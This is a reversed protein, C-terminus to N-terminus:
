RLRKEIEARVRQARKESNVEAVLSYGKIRISGLITKEWTSMKRNGKKLWDFELSRLKGAEDFEADELLEEKSRGVALPALAEFATEASEIRFTLTHFVLPDGDTNALRPPAHLGDRIDLYAERIDETYRVLDEAALNRNQKAIKRQLRRRLGIIEAKCKPPIRIPATCGLISYGKLNWIQTYLIDGRQLGRSGSQEFVEADGGMLIDRLEMHEGPQNWLVEHFSVPQAAAQELFLRELDSLQNWRELTYARAVVGSYKKTAKRGRPRSPDWHFLFYPMFIQREDEHKDLPEPFDTMEFDKWAKELEEGFHLAAFEMLDRTLEDCAERERSWQERLAAEQEMCCRKYKNGSGCPCPDNRGIKAPSPTAM